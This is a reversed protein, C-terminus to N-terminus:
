LSNRLLIKGTHEGSEMYQHAKIVEDLTFIKAIVPQIKQRAILPWIDRTVGKSIRAKEIMPRDRLSTTFLSARKSFLDILSFSVDKGGQLGIIALRGDVALAQINRRFYVAGMNDLIVDVGHGNTYKLIVDEFSQEKYPIVVAAGLRKCIELKTHTGATAYVEAGWAVGFQVAFSGVGGAGGHILLNDGSKLDCHDILNSWVTCAAEPLAAAENLEVGEPVPMLQDVHVAVYEAYSGGPTLACVYDGINWDLVGEGIEAIVGSCEIGPILPLNSAKSYIGKRQMLDAYNLATAAVQIIVEGSKPSPRECDILQLVEPAGTESLLVARM